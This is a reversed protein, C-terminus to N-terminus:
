LSLNTCCERSTKSRLREPRTVAVIADLARLAAQMEGELPGPRGPDLSVGPPM